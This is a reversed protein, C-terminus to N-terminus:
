KPKLKYAPEGPKNGDIAVVKVSADAQSAWIFGLGDAGGAISQLVQAGTKVTKPLEGGAGSFSAHMFHLTYDTESMGGVIKLTAVREPQGPASM